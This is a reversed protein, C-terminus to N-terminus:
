IFTYMAINYMPYKGKINRCWVLTWYKGMNFAGICEHLTFFFLFPNSAPSKDERAPLKYLCMCSQPFSYKMKISWSNWPHQRFMLLLSSFTLFAPSLHQKSIWHIIFLNIYEHVVYPNCNVRVSTNWESFISVYACSFDGWTKCALKHLLYKYIIHVYISYYFYFNHDFVLWYHYWM